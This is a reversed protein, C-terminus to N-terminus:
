QIFFVFNIKKQQNVNILIEILKIGSSVTRKSLSVGWGYNNRKITKNDNSLILDKCTLLPDWQLSVGYKFYLCYKDIKLEFSDFCRSHFFSDVEQDDFDEVEYHLRLLNKWIIASSYVLRFFFKNTSSINQISNLDFNSFIIFLLNKPLKELQAETQTKSEFIQELLGCNKKTQSKSKNKKPISNKPSTSNNEPEIKDNKNGM